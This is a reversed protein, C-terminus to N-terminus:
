KAKPIAVAQIKASMKALRLSRQRQGEEPLAKPQRELYEELCEGQFEERVEGIAREMRMAAQVERWRVSRAQLEVELLRAALRQAEM